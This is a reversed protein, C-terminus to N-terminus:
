QLRLGFYFKDDDNVDGDMDLGLLNIMDAGLPAVTCTDGPATDSLCDGDRVRGWKTPPDACDNCADRWGFYLSLHQKVYAAAAPAPSACDVTGNKHTGTVFQGDPCMAKGLVSASAPADACHLGVYFKDDDNVNGDPNLGYLTVMQDGLMAMSCTCNTGVGNECADGGEHGWKTPPDSCGNCSDRWGLYATCGSDVVSTLAHAAPTCMAKDGSLGTLLEGPKCPGPEAKAAGADCHIGIYFKDTNDVDGDTNLGFLSIWQNDFIAPTCTDNMGVGLTCDKGDARGWKTPPDSCGTCSDRWGFYLSCHENVAAKVLDELAECTPTGDDALGTAFQGKPCAKDVPGGGTSQSSSAVTDGGAGSGDSQGGSGGSGGASSSTSAGTTSSGASDTTAEKACASFAAVGALGVLFAVKLKQQM